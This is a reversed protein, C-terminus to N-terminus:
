QSVYALSDTIPTIGLPDLYRISMYKGLVQVIIVIVLVRLIWNTPVHVRLFHRFMKLSHRTVLSALNPWCGEIAADRRKRYDVIDDSHGSLKGHEKGDGGYVGRLRLM